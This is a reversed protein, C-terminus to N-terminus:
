CKPNRGKVHSFHSQRNGQPESTDRFKNIAHVFIMFMDLILEQNKKNTDQIHKSMDSFKNM